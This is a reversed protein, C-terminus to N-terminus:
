QDQKSFSHTLNKQTKIRTLQAASAFFFVGVGTTVVGAGTDFGAGLFTLISVKKRPVYGTNRNSIM